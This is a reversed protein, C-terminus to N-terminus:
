GSFQFSEVMEIRQKLSDLSLNNRYGNFSAAIKVVKNSYKKQEESSTEDKRINEHRKLSNGVADNCDNHKAGILFSEVLACFHSDLLESQPIMGYLDNILKEPTDAKNIYANYNDYHYEKAIILFALLAPYLHINEATSQIVLNIKAFLQEVERLSLEKANALLKFTDKLNDKDYQFESYKM